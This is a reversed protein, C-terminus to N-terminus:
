DGSVTSWPFRRVAPSVNDIPMSELGAALFAILGDVDDERLGPPTVACGGNPKNCRRLLVADLLERAYRFGREASPASVGPLALQLADRFAREVAGFRLSWWDEGEQSQSLWAVACLYNRWEGHELATPRGFPAWYARLVREATITSAALALSLSQKWEGLLRDARRSVMAELLLEKSGFHYNLLAVHVGAQRAIARHSPAAYGENAALSEAADLLRGRTIGSKDRAATPGDM